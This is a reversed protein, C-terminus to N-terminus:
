AAYTSSLGFSSTDQFLDNSILFAKVNCKYLQSWIVQIIFYTLQFSFDLQTAYTSRHGIQKKELILQSENYKAKSVSFLRWVLVTIRRQRTVKTRKFVSYM